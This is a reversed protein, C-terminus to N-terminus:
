RNSFLDYFKKVTAFFFIVDMYLGLLVKFDPSHVLQKILRTFFAKQHKSPLDDPIKLGIGDM